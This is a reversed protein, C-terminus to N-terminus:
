IVEVWSNADTCTMTDTYTQLADVSLYLSDMHDDIINISSEIAHTKGDSVGVAATAPPQVNPTQTGRTHPRSGQELKPDEDPCIPPIGKTSQTLQHPPPPNPHGLNDPNTSSAEQHDLAELELEGWETSM